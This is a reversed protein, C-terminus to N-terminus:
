VFNYSGDGLWLGLARKRGAPSADAGLLADLEVAQLVEALQEDSAEPNALRLNDALSASFVHVTIVEYLM